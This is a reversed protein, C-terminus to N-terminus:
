SYLQGVNDRRLVNESLDDSLDFTVSSQSSNIQISEICGVFGSRVGVDKMM